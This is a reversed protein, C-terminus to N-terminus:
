TKGKQALKSISKIMERKSGEIVVKTNHQQALYRPFTDRDKLKLRTMLEAIKTMKDAIDSKIKLLNVMAEKSASSADGDNIVMEAINSLLDDANVRDQRCNNLVENYVNVLTDDSIICEKEQDMIATPPEVKPILQGIDFDPLNEIPSSNVSIEETLVEKKSM